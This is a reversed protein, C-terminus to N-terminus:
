IQVYPHVKVGFEGGMALLITCLDSGFQNNATCVLQGTDTSKVRQIKLTHQDDDPMSMEFMGPKNLLVVGRRKWTVVANVHNLTLTISVSQNEVVYVVDPKDLIIPAKRLYPGSLSWLDFSWPILGDDRIHQCVM